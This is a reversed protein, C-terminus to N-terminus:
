CEAAVTAIFHHTDRSPLRPAALVAIARPANVSVVLALAAVILAETSIVSPTGRNQFGSDQRVKVVREIAAAIRSSGVVYRLLSIDLNLFYPVLSDLVGFTAEEQVQLTRRSAFKTEASYLVMEPLQVLRSGTGCGPIAVPIHLVRDCVPVSEAKLLM